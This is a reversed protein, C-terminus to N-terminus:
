ILSKSYYRPSQKQQQQQDQPSWCTTTRFDRASGGLKDGRGGEGNSSRKHRDGGGGRARNLMVLVSDNTDVAGCSMLNRLVNSAGSSYSKSKPLASKPPSSSSSTSLSPLSNLIVPTTGEMEKTTSAIPTAEVVVVSKKKMKKNNTGRINPYFSSPIDSGFKEKPKECDTVTESSSHKKNDEELKMSEDSLEIDTLTSRESGFHSSEENIESSTKSDPYTQFEQALM